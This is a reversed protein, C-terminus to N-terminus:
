NSSSRVFAAALLVHDSPETGSPLPTKDEVITTPFPRPSFATSCMIYDIKKAKNEPNATAVSSDHADTFRALLFMKIVGSEKEVNFDGCVITRLMRKGLIALLERAQALGYQKEPPTDPPDWKLHTNVVIVAMDNREVAIMLAIHGSKEGDICEDNYGLIRTETVRWFNRVFTACGDPKGRGKHVWRGHYGIKRLRSEALVFLEYDVEQLCIIDANRLQAVRKVIRPYRNEKALLLPDISPYYKPKVYADALVNYTAVVIQGPSDV